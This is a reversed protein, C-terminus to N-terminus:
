QSGGSKWRCGTYSAYLHVATCSHRPAKQWFHKQGTSYYLSATRYRVYTTGTTIYGFHISSYMTCGMDPGGCRGRLERPPTRTALLFAHGPRTPPKFGSGRSTILGLLISVSHSSRRPVVGLTIRLETHIYVRSATQRTQREWSEDVRRRRKILKQFLAQYGYRMRLLSSPSGQSRNCSLNSATTTTSHDIQFVIETSSFVAHSEFDRFCLIGM